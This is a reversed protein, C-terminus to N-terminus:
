LKTKSDDNGKDYGGCSGFLVTTKLSPLKTSKPNTISTSKLCISKNDAM